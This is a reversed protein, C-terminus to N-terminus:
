HGFSHISWRFLRNRSLFYLSGFYCPVFVLAALLSNQLFPLGAVLCASWGALSHAYLGSALWTGFNTWLWYVFTSGLAYGVIRWRPMKQKFVCASGLAMAVFGTYTFLSWSGIVEYGACLALLWDSLLLSALTMLVAQRKSLQCGLLLVLSAYPSFNPWHPVLRACCLLIVWFLLSQWSSATRQM